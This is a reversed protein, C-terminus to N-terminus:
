RMKFPKTYSFLVKCVGSEMYVPTKDMEEVACKIAQSVDRDKEGILLRRVCADL